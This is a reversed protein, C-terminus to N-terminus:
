AQPIFIDDVRSEKYESAPAMNFSLSLPFPLSLSLSLSLPFFLLSVSYVCQTCKKTIVVTKWVTRQAGYVMAVVCMIYM